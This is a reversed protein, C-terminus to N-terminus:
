TFAVLGWQYNTLVLEPLPQTGDNTIGYPMLVILLVSLLTPKIYFQHFDLVAITQFVCVCLVM